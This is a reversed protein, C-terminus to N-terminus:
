VNYGKWKMKSFLAAATTSKGAGPGAFLNIVKM